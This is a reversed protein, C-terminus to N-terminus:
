LVEGCSGAGIRELLTLDRSDIIALSLALKSDINHIHPAGPMHHAGDAKMLGKISTLSSLGSSRRSFETDADWYFNGNHQIKKQRELWFYMVMCIILAVLGAILYPLLLELKSMDASNGVVTIYIEQFANGGSNVGTVTLRVNVDSVEEPTGLIIGTRNDM